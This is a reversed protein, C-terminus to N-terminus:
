YPVSTRGYGKGRNYYSFMRAVFGRKRTTRLRNVTKIKPVIIDQLGVRQLQFM